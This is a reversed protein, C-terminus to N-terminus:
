YVVTSGENESKPPCDCGVSQVVRIDQLIPNCAFAKRADCSAICERYYNVGANGRVYADHDPFLLNFLAVIRDQAVLSDRESSKLLLEFRSITEGKKFRRWTASSPERLRNEPIHTDIHRLTSYLLVEQFTTYGTVHPCGGRVTSLISSTHFIARRPTPSHHGLINGESAYSRPRWTAEQRAAVCVATVEYARPRTVGAM